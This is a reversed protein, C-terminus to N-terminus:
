FKNKLYWKVTETLGEDFSMKPQWGLKKIKESNISYRRDHGKRDEVFEIYSSDKRLVSLIEKTLRLNSKENDGGVNYIEGAKGKQLIKEIATCHDNVYLWDRVNKGDGYIPIRMGAGARKIIKPIFKEEHQYKGYNNSSRSITVALGYTRYCALALLDAAAKSASYPSSPKLPSTETFREGGELPLDGYVEDTSIQHFREVGYRLCADLLVQTGLVNTKLFIDPNQISRDVHSEAAFHVVVNPLERQFIRFIKKRACIDERYFTFRSNKQLDELAM